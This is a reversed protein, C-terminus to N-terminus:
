TFKLKDVLLRVESSIPSEIMKVEANTGILHEQKTNIFHQVRYKSESLMAQLKREIGKQKMDEFDDGGLKYGRNWGMTRHFDPQIAMIQSGRVAGGSFVSDKKELFCYMAKELEDEGIELYDEAGYGRILKFYKM